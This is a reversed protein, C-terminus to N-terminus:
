DEEKGPLTSKIVIESVNDISSVSGGGWEGCNMIKGTQMKQIMEIELQLNVIEIAM